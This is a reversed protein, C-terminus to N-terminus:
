RKFLNRDTLILYQLYKCLTSDQKNKKKKYKKQGCWAMHFRETWPDFGLQLQSRHLLQLLLPDEAWQVM